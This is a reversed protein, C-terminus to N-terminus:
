YSDKPYRNSQKNKRVMLLGSIIGIVVIIAGVLIFIFKNSFFNQPKPTPTPLTIGNDDRIATYTDGIFGNADKVRLVVFALRMASPYTYTFQNTQQFTSDGVDWFYSVIKSSGAISSSADFSVPKHMPLHYENNSRNPKTLGDLSIVAKPLVYNKSPLIQLQVSELLQPTPSTGDNVYISLLYSGIKKYSHANEIGTGKEGDGFDWTFKSIKIIEPPVPLKTTDLKFAIPQNILYNEPGADQALPFTDLSTTPVSYFNSYKGNVEFFPAQGILHASAVQTFLLFLFFILGIIRLYKM